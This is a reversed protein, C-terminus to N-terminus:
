CNHAYIRVLCELPSAQASWAADDAAIEASLSASLLHLLMDLAGTSLMQAHSTPQQALRAM